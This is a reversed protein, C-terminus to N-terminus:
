ITAYNEQVATITRLAANNHGGYCCQKDYKLKWFM